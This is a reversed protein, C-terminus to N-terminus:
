SWWKTSVPIIVIMLGLIRGASTQRAPRITAPQWVAESSSAAGLCAWTTRDSTTGTSSVVTESAVVGGGPSAAPPPLEVGPTTRLLGPKM